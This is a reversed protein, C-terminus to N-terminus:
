YEWREGDQISTLFGEVGRMSSPTPEFGLQQVIELGHGEAIAHNLQDVAQSFQPTHPTQLLDSKTRGGEPLFEMLEKANDESLIKSLNEPALITSLSIRATPKMTSLIDKFLDFNVNNSPTSTAATSTSSTKSSSTVTSPTSPYGASKSTTPAPTSPITSATSTTTTATTTATTATTPVEEDEGSIIQKITEELKTDDAPDSEQLWFFEKQDSSTFKLYYMRGDACSKVKIFELEGPVSYFQQDESGGKEERSTWTVVILEDALEFKLSGKEGHSTIQKNELQAKGAKFEISDIKKKRGFSSM